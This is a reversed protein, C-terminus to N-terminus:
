RGLRRFLGTRADYLHVQADGVDFYMGVLDLEGRSEARAVTPYARLRDLQELVNHLALQDVESPLPRGEIRVPPRAAARARSAEAHRLWSRLAPADHPAGDLLAKMAGCSSHGCVVVERVKLVGVAFEVAAGVSADEAATQHDPVLNGINRVTFLDGPGSTTIINPVIRADGCTIFLTQPSQTDALRSLTPKLLPATRRQFEVAGRRM